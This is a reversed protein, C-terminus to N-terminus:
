HRVVLLKLLQDVVIQIFLSDNIHRHSEILEISPSKWLLLSDLLAQDPQSDYDPTEAVDWRSLGGRPFVIKVIGHSASAKFALEKGLADCDESTTRILQTLQDVSVQERELPYDEHNSVIVHDLCGPVIVQPIGLMAASTLREPVVKDRVGLQAATLDSLCLELVAAISPNHLLTHEFSSHQEGTITFLQSRWGSRRLMEVAHIAGVEVSSDVSIAVFRNLSM